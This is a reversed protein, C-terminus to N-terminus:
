RQDDEWNVYTQVLETLLRGIPGDEGMRDLADELCEKLSREFFTVYDEEGEGWLTISLPDKSDAGESREIGIKGDPWVVHPQNDGASDDESM